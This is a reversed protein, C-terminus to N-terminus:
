FNPPPNTTGWPGQWVVFGGTTWFIRTRRYETTNNNCRVEVLDFSCAKTATVGAPPGGPDPCDAADDLVFVPRVGPPDPADGIQRGSYYGSGDTTLSRNVRDVLWVGAPLDAWVGTAQDLAQLKAPYYDIGHATTKAGTVRLLQVNSGPPARGVGAAATDPPTAEVRRTAAVVRRAGASDFVFGPGDAM